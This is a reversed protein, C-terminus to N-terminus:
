VQVSSQLDGSAGSIGRNSFKQHGTLLEAAHALTVELMGVGVEEWGAKTIIDTLTPKFAVPWTEGVSGVQRAEGV